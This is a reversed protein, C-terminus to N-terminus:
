SQTYLGAGPIELGNSVLFAVGTKDKMMLRLSLVQIVQAPTM